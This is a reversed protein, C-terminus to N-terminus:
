AEGAYSRPLNALPLDSIMYVPKVGKRLQDYAMRGPDAIDGWLGPPAGTVPGAVGYGHYPYTSLICLSQSGGSTTVRM